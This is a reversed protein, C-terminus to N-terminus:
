TKWSHASVNVCATNLICVHDCLFINKFNFNCEIILSVHQTDKHLALSVVDQNWCRVQPMPRFMESISLFHILM